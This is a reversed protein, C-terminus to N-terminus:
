RAAYSAAPATGAETASSGEIVLTRGDLVTGGPTVPVAYVGPTDNDYVLANVQRVAARDFRSDASILAAAGSLTVLGPDGPGGGVLTVRDRICM